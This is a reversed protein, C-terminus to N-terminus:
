LSRSATARIGSRCRARYDGDPIRLWRLAAACLLDLPGLMACVAVDPELATLRPILRPVIVPAQLLRWVLGAAGDYTDVPLACYSRRSRLIEASTSLSLFAEVRPISRLADALHAALLPGAGRRGWQWVFVRM